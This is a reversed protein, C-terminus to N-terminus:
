LFLWPSAVQLFIICIKFFYKTLSKVQLSNSLYLVLCQFSRINSFTLSVLQIFDLNGDEGDTTMWLGALNTWRKLYLVSSFKCFFFNNLLAFSIDINVKYNDTLHTGSTLLKGRHFKGQKFDGEFMLNGDEYYFSGWGEALGDTLNGHFKVTGSLYFFKGTGTQQGARWDGSWM